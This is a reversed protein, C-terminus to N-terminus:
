QLFMKLQPDWPDTMPPEFELNSLTCFHQLATDFTIEATKDSVKEYRSGFHIHPWDKSNYDPFPNRVDVQVVRTQGSKEKKYLSFTTKEAKITTGRTRLIETHLGPCSKSFWFDEVAGVCSICGIPAPHSNKKKSTLARVDRKGKEVPTWEWCVSKMKIKTIENAEEETVCGLVQHPVVLTTIM